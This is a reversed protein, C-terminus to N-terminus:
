KLKALQAKRYADFSEAKKVTGKDVVWVERAVRGVFYQDHSVLVVGGAFAEICDALSAVSELDLNNTPEDLVLVHPQTYSVAALAVRSRQGGSLASSPLLQMEALVGCSHLHSRLAQEHDYSGDGPFKAMLFQLPSMTLDLQDAHHQNVLAIRVGQAHVIEGETPQLEGLMLKVLTTKGNGNEGLLVIRSKSDIGMEAGRFLLPADAAVPAPAPSAAAAAGASSDAESTPPPPAATPYRFGVGKIQVVMQSGLEGGAKLSLPSEADEQLAAADSALARAEEELKDAQKEKSKLTKMAKPTSGLKGIDFSRLEKIQNQKQAMEREHTLQQQARRQAWGSFNGRSQTLRRAAGSVHLTDSAIEDLFVRDHSVVVVIRQQWAENTTLERALWLVAAISLHNTPEDLLLLDPKAFIAAALATRVRWGGSLAAMPRARLEPSFGLATLLATARQEATAAECQELAEEVQNQKAADAEDGQAQLEAQEALLLRREIDAHVVFQVPTWSYREEELQVEQSVYHVTLEPPIDGVARSALARLLTSKGKGNRGILAYVRGRVLTFSANELLERGGGPNPLSFAKAEVAGTYAGMQRRLKVADTVAKQLAADEAARQVLIRQYANRTAKLETEREAKRKKRTTLAEDIDVLRGGLGSDDKERFLHEDGASMKVTADLIKLESQLTEADDPTAASLSAFLETVKATAADEDACDGTSLLFESIAEKMEEESEDGELMGIIYERIDEDLEVLLKNCAEQAEAYGM